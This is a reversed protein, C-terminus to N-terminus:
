YNSSNITQQEGEAAKSQYWKITFFQLSRVLVLRTGFIKEDMESRELKTCM